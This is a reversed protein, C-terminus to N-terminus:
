AGFSRVATPEDPLNRQAHLLTLANERSEVARRAIVAQNREAVIRRVALVGAVAAMAFLVLAVTVAARHRRLWRVLLAAPPYHHARVLQGDLYRRLDEALAIRPRAPWRRKSSPRWTTPCM